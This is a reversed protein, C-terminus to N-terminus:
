NQGNACVECKTSEFPERFFFPKQCSECWTGLDNFCDYCTKVGEVPIISFYPVIKGCVDCKSYMLHRDERISEFSFMEAEEINDLMKRVNEITFNLDEIKLSEYETHENYYGASM